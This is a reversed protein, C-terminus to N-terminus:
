YIRVLSLGCAFPLFKKQSKSAEEYLNLTFDM